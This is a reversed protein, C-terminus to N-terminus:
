PYAPYFSLEASPGLSEGEFRLRTTGPRITRYRNDWWTSAPWSLAWRADQGDLMITGQGLDVVVASGAPVDLDLQLSVGRDLDEVYPGAWPGDFRIAVPSAVLGPNVVDVEGVPLPVPGLSSSLVVPLVWPLALGGGAAPAGLTASVVRLAADYIRPDSLAIAVVFSAQFPTPVANLSEPLADAVNVTGRGRFFYANGRYGEDFTIDMRQERDVEQFAAELADTAARLAMASLAEIRGTYVVNKGARAGPRPITGIGGVVPDSPLTPEAMNRLDIDDCWYRWSRVGPELPARDHLVVGAAWTHTAELTPVGGPAIRGAGGALFPAISV